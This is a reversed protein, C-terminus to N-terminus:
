NKRVLFGMVLGGLTTGTMGALIIISLLVVTSDM